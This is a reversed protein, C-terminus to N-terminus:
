SRSTKKLIEAIMASCEPNSAEGQRVADYFSENPGRLKKNRILSSEHLGDEHDQRSQRNTEADM